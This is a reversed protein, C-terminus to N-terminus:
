HKFNKKMQFKNQHLTHPLHVVKLFLVIWYGVSFRSTLNIFIYNVYLLIWGKLHAIRLKLLQIIANM